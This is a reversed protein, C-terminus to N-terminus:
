SNLNTTIATLTADIDAVKLFGDLDATRILLALRKRAKMTVVDQLFDSAIYGIQMNYGEADYLKAYRGDGVVLTNATVSASAVVTMGNITMRQDAGIYRVANRQRDGM